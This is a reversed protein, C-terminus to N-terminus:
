WELNFVFPNLKLKKPDDLLEFSLIVNKIEYDIPEFSIIGSDQMDPLLVSKLNYSHVRAVITGGSTKQTLRTDNFSNFNVNEEANNKLILFCRTERNSFEIREVFITVSNQQQSKNFVATHITPAYVVDPAVHNAKSAIVKLAKVSQNQYYGDLHGSIKVYDEPKFITGRKYIFVVFGGELRPNIKMLYSIQNTNKSLIGVIQGTLEVSSGKYASHNSAIKDYDDNTFEAKVPAIKKSNTKNAKLGLTTCGPLLIFILVGVLIKRLV